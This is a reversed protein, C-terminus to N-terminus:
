YNKILLESVFGRAKGDSNINRRANIRKITFQQYLDDFFNDEPNENKPDSNSLLFKAGKSDIIKCFNALRIQENDDFTEKTYSNFSATTNLPRYPPDLYVFTGKEIFNLASEFDECIIETKAFARSTALLNSVDCIKPNKYSGFPVNFEGASNVRYLGNFGTKNLFLLKASPSLWATTNKDFYVNKIENNYIERLEYYFARQASETLLYYENQITDLANILDEVNDRINKYLYVLAKNIDLVVKTPFHFNNSLAFFVAGGGFFPEVYTHIENKLLSPPLNKRIVPLLQRKGGAWKLVPSAEEFGFLSFTRAFDTDQLLTM